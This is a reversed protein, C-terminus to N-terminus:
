RSGPVVAASTSRSITAGISARSRSILPTSCLKAVAASPM